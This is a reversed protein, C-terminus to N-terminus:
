MSVHKFLGNCVESNVCIKVPQDSNVLRSPSGVGDAKVDDKNDESFTWSLSGVGEVNASVIPTATLGENKSTAVNHEDTPVTADGNVEVKNDKSLSDWLATLPGQGQVSGSVNPTAKLEDNNSTAVNDRAM